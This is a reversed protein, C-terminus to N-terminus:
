ILYFLSRHPDINLSRVENLRNALLQVLLPHDGLPELLHVQAKFPPSQELIQLEVEQIIAPIDKEVHGGRVLFWPMVDIVPVQLMYLRQLVIKFDSLVAIEHYQYHSQTYVQYQQIISNLVRQTEGQRDGHGVLILAKCESKIPNM